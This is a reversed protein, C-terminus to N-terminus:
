MYLQHTCVCTLRGAAEDIGWIRIWSSNSIRIHRYFCGIYACQLLSFFEKVESVTTKVLPVVVVSGVSLLTTPNADSKPKYDGQVEEM